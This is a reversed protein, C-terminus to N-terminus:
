HDDASPGRAKWGASTISEPRPLDYYGELCRQVERLEGLISRLQRLERRSAGAAEKERIRKALAASAARYEGALQETTM